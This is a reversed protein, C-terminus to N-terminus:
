LPPTHFIPSPCNCLFFYMSPHLHSEMAILVILGLNWALTMFYIGLFLVFLTVQREPHESFGWLIFSTMM